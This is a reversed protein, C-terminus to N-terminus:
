SNQRLITDIHQKSNHSTIELNQLQSSLKRINQQGADIQSQLDTRIDSIDAKIFMKGVGTYVNNEVNLGCCQTLTLELQRVETEKSQLQSKVILIKQRSSEEQIQIEQLLRQLAEQSMNSM